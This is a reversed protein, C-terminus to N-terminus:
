VTGARKCRTTGCSPPESQFSLPKLILERSLLGLASQWHRDTWGVLRNNSTRARGKLLRQDHVTRAVVTDNGSGTSANLRQQVARTRSRVRITANQKTRAKLKRDPQEPGRWLRNLTQRLNTGVKNLAQHLNTWVSLAPKCSSDPLKPASLYEFSSSLSLPSVGPWSLAHWTVRPAPERQTGAAPHNIPNVPVVSYWTTWTECRDTNGHESHTHHGTVSPSKKWLVRRAVDLDGLFAPGRLRLVSILSWVCDMKGGFESQEEPDGGSGNAFLM